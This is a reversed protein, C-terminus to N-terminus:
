KKLPFNIVFLFYSFKILIINGYVYLILYGIIKDNNANFYFRLLVVVIFGLFYYMKALSM